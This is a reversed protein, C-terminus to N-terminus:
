QVIVNVNLKVATNDKVNPDTGNLYEQLNTVGDGDSDAAPDIGGGGFYGAQWSAPIPNAMVSLNFSFLNKVQGINAMAFDNASGSSGIWPYTGSMLPGQSYGLGLLRDYIPKVLTKLQGLNVAAYDNTINSTASLALVLGQIGPGIGGVLDLDITLEAAAHAAMNKAQGQNAAAYDNATTGSLVGQNTWWTPYIPTSQAFATQGICAVASIIWCVTRKSSFISTM